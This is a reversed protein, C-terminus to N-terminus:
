PHIQCVLSAAHEYKLQEIKVLDDDLVQRYEKIESIEKKLSEAKRISEISKVSEAKESAIQQLSVKTKLEELEKVVSDRKEIVVRSEEELEIRIRKGIAVYARESVVSENVEKAPSAQLQEMKWKLSELELGAKMREEMERKARELNEDFAKKMMEFDDNVRSIEPEIMSVAVSEVEVAEIPIDNEVVVISRAAEIEERLQQLVVRGEFDVLDEVIQETIEVGIIEIDASRGPAKIKLFHTFYRRNTKSSYAVVSRIEDL